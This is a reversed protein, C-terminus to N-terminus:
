VTSPAQNKDRKGTNTGIVTNGTKNEEMVCNGQFVASEDIVLSKTKIDGYIRGTATVELKGTVVIDGRVECSLVLDAANVTGTVRGAQGIILIGLANVTGKVAGDLRTTEKTNFIGELETEGGVFTRVTAVSTKRAMTDEKKIYAGHFARPKNGM